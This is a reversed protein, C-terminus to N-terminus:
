CSKTNRGFVGQSPAPLCSPGMARLGPACLCVSRRVAASRFAAFQGLEPDDPLPRGTRFGRRYRASAEARGTRWWARPGDRRPDPKARCRHAFGIARPPVRRQRAETATQELDGDLEAFGVASIELLADLIRGYNLTASLTSAMEYIARSRDAAARLRQMETHRARSERANLPPERKVSAALLGCLISAGILTISSPLLAAMAPGGGVSDGRLLVIVAHGIALAVANGLGARWDFRFSFALASLYCYCFLGEGGVVMLGLSFVSDLILFTLAAMDSFAGLRLMLAPVVNIAAMLGVVTLVTSRSVVFGPSPGLFM